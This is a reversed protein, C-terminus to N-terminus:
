RTTVTNSIHASIRTDNVWLPQKISRRRAELCPTLLKTSQMNIMLINLSMQSLQKLSRVDTSM